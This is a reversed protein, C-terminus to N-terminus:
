FGGSNPRSDKPQELLRFASTDELKGSGQASREPLLPRLTRFAKIRSIGTNEIELGPEKVEEAKKDLIEQALQLGRAMFVKPDDFAQQAVEPKMVMGNTAYEEFVRIVKLHFAPSIWMAYAYVLEECVYTGPAKGGRITHVPDIESNPSHLEAVLAGTTENAFFKAPQKHPTAGAAKHIDNLCYRGENDKRITITDITLTNM